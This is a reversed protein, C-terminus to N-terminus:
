AEGLCRIVVAWDIAGEVIIGVAGVRGLLRAPTILRTQGTVQCCKTWISTTTAQGPLVITKPVRAGLVLTAGVVEAPVGGRRICDAVRDLADQGQRGMRPGPCRHGWRDWVELPVLGSSDILITPANGVYRAFNTDLVFMAPDESIFRGASPDYWRARYFYLDVASEWERATFKFRDGASPSSETLINGFSDYDIEDLIDGEADVIQRVSGLNDTNYWDIDGDPAIRAMIQDVIEGYLYHTLLEGEADYDAWPHNGNYVTALIEAEGSAAGDADIERIILNNFVDYTFHAESIVVESSNTVIVSTLRNRHDWTYSTVTGTAIEEKTLRNGENDYTYDFVGDSLLQNNPGTVYDDDHLHSEVRNGNADYAYSETRDGTAGTLQHTDDYSYEMDGGPGAYAILEHEQNYEYEFTALETEDYSHAISTVRGLLDYGFDTVVPENSTSDAYRRVQAPAFLNGGMGFEVAHTPQGQHDYQISALLSGSYMYNVSASAAGLNVALEPVDQLALDGVFEVTWPGGPDGTM